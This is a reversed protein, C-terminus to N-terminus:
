ENNDEQYELMKAKIKDLEYKITRESLQMVLAIEHIKLGRVRYNVVKVQRPTMDRLIDSVLYTDVCAMNSLLLNLKNQLLTNRRMCGKVLNVVIKILYPTDEISKGYKMAQIYADSAIDEKLCKNTGKLISLRGVIKHLYNYTDICHNM